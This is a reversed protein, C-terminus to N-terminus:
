AIQLLQNEFMERSSYFGLVQRPYENVWDEVRQIDEVTYKSLDSGKPILRRIERNIRENTGRESSCYPHCYYLTTRKSNKGFISRQLAQFDSFESGNDVTISKFIKKFDKGYRYEIRNLCKVVSESKQNEMPIIIEKRTLRETLVLLVNKTSGCVCDMEWHGFTKRELIEIPRKEISTGKPARKIVVSRKGKKKKEKMPLHRIELRSFYGKEIYKYLTNVSITTNFRLGKRKIEGLVALPSLKEDVIKREIYEAYEYDKGLKIEAGKQRLNFEYKEQAIDCSYRKETLWTAGDLHEYEGRKVVEDVSYQHKNKQSENGHTLYLLMDTKRGKVKEIFNEAIGFWSAVMKTDCSSPSFNLYIHYHPRTDDKDHLIYAWQKITKYKMCTEQIDVSLKDKDTVIEMQRLQM